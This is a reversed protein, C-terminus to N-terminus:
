DKILSKIKVFKDYKRQLGIKDNEYNQYIYDGLIKIGKRNTIRIISFKNVKNNQLQQKRAISYKINLQKM